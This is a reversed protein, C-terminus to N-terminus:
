PVAVSRNSVPDSFSRVSRDEVRGSRPVADESKGSVPADRIRRLSTQEVAEIGDEQAVVMVAFVELIPSKIEPQLAPSPRPPASVPRTPPVAATGGVLRLLEGDPASHPRRPAQPSDRTTAGHALRAVLGGRALLRLHAGRCAAPDSSRPPRAPLPLRPAAASSRAPRPPRPLKPLDPTRHRLLGQFDRGPM